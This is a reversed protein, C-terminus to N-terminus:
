PSRDGFLTRRLWIRWVRFLAAIASSVVPIEEEPPPREDPILKPEIGNARMEALYDPSSLRDLLAMEFCESACRLPNTENAAGYREALSSLHPNTFYAGLNYDYCPLRIERRQVREFWPMWVRMFGAVDTDTRAYQVLLTHFEKARQRLLEYKHM